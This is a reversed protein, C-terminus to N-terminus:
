GEPNLRIREGAWTEHLNLWLRRNYIHFILYALPAYLIAGISFQMFFQVCAVVAYAVLEARYTKDRSVAKRDAKRSYVEGGLEQLYERRAEGDRPKRIRWVLLMAGVEVAFMFLTYPLIAWKQGVLACAVTFLIDGLILFLLFHTVAATVAMPIISHIFRKM